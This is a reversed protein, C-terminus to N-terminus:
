ANGLAAVQCDLVFGVREDGAVHDDAYFLADIRAALDDAREIFVINAFFNAIQGAAAGAAEYDREEPAEQIGRVLAAYFFDDAVFVFFKVDAVQGHDEGSLDDALEAFVLAGHGGDEVGVELAGHLDFKGGHPVLEAFFTVGLREQHNLAGASDGFNKAGSGAASEVAAWDGAKHARMVYGFNEAVLIDDHRVHAAGAEVDAEDDFVADATVIKAGDDIAPHDADGHNLREGDAGAAAGDGGDVFEEFIAHLDARATGAGDGARRTEIEAAGFGGDGVCVNDEAVQVGLIIEASFHAEIFIAGDLGHAFFDGLGQADTYFFGRDDDAFDDVAVHSGSDHFFNM